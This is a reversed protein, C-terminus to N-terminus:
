GVEPPALELMSDYPRRDEALPGLAEYALVVDTLVKDLRAFDEGKLRGRTWNPALRQVDALAQVRSCGASVVSWADDDLADALMDRQERWSPLGLDVFGPVERRAIGNRLLRSVMFLDSRLLRASARARRKERRADRGWDFVGAIIAGLAVGTRLGAARASTLARLRQRAARQERQTGGRYAPHLPALHIGSGITAASPRAVRTPAPLGRGERRDAKVTGRECYGRDRHVSKASTGLDTRNVLM